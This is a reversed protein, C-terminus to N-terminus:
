IDPHKKFTKHRNGRPRVGGPGPRVPFVKFTFDIFMVNMNLLADCHDGLAEVALKTFHGNKDYPIKPYIKIVARLRPWRGARVIITRLFTLGYGAKVFVPDVLKLKELVAPLLCSTDAGRKFKM